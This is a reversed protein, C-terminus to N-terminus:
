KSPPGGYGKFFDEFPTGKFFDKGFGEWPQATVTQESRISVVPPQVKRAVEVFAFGLNKATTPKTYTPREAAGSSCASMIAVLIMISLLFCGSLSRDIRRMGNAEM